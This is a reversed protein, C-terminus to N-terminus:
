TLDILCVAFYAVSMQIRKGFRQSKSELSPPQLVRTMSPKNKLLILLILFSSELSIQGEAQNKSEVNPEPAVGYSTRNEDCVM